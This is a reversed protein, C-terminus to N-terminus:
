PCSGRRRRHAAWQSIALTVGALTVLAAPTPEPVAQIELGWSTLTSQGGSSVDAVFLTWAGNPDLGVLRDLRATRPSTDFVLDPDIDRGDPQYTGTVAAGANGGYLHVDTTVGPADSLTVNFGADPYGFSTSATRGVRNLLVVFGSAHSLSAYLDGNFGGSINLSVIVSEIIPFPTSLTRTDQWGSVNGDPIIGNSNFGGDWYGTVQAPQANLAWLMLGVVLV